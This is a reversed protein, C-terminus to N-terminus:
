SVQRILLDLETNEVDQFIVDYQKKTADKFRIFYCMGEKNVYWGQRETIKYLLSLDKLSVKPQNDMTPTTQSETSLTSTQQEDKEKEKEKNNEENEENEDNEDNEENENVATSSSSFPTQIPDPNVLQYLVCLRDNQLVSQLDEREEQYFVTQWIGDQYVAKHM